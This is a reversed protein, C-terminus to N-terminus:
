RGWAGGATESEGLVERRMPAPLRRRDRCARASAFPARRLAFRIPVDVPRQGKAGKEIAFAEGSV